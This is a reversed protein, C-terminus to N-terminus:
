QETYQALNIWNVEGHGEKYRISPRRLPLKGSNKKQRKPFSSCLSVRKAGRKNEDVHSLFVSTLFRKDHVAWMGFKM